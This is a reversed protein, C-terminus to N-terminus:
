LGMILGIGTHLLVSLIIMLWRTSKRWILFTFSIELFLTFYTGGLMVVEWLIRYESLFQLFALYVPWHMPAFSYNAMTGWLATGNWWAPGQLKSLGSALYIICLHIQMLRLTFNASVSPKVPPPALGKRRAWWKQLLRDVSLTAGSPAIILYICLINMITDMG